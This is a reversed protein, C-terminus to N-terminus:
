PASLVSVNVGTETRAREDKNRKAKPVLFTFSKGIAGADFRKVQYTGGAKELFLSGRESVAKTQAPGALIRMEKGQEFVHILPMASFDSGIMITHPGPHLVAGGWRTEAPLNVTGRYVQQANAQSGAAALALACLSWGYTHKLLM